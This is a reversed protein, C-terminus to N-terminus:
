FWCIYSTGDVGLSDHCCIGSHGGFLLDSVTDILLCFNGVGGAGFEGGFGDTPEDVDTGPEVELSGTQTGKQFETHLSSDLRNHNGIAVSETAEPEFEDLPQQSFEVGPDQNEM